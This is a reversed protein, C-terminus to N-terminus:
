ALSRLRRRPRPLLNKPPIVEAIAAEIFDDLGVEWLRAFAPHAKAKREIVRFLLLDLRGTPDSAKPAPAKTKM